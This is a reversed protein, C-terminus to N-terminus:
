RYYQEYNDKSKLQKKEQKIIQKETRRNPKWHKCGECSVNLLRIIVSEDYKRFCEGKHTDNDYSCHECNAHIKVIETKRKKFCM